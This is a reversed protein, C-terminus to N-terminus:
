AKLASRPWRGNWSKITAKETLMKDIYLIFCFVFFLKRIEYYKKACKWFRVFYFNKIMWLGKRPDRSTGCLIQARDTWGNKVNITYLCVSLCITLSFKYISINKPETRGYESILHIWSRAIKNINNHLSPNYLKM